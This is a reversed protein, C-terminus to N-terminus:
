HFSLVFAWLALVSPVGIVAIRWLTQYAEDAERGYREADARHEQAQERHVSARGEYYEPGHVM